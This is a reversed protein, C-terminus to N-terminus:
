HGLRRVFEEARARDEANGLADILVTTLHKYPVRRLNEELDAWAETKRGLALFTLGRRGWTMADSPNTELHRACNALADALDKQAAFIIAGTCIEIYTKRDLDCALRYDEWAGAENYVHYRAHGRLTHLRCRDVVKSPDVPMHEIAKDYDVVARDWENRIHHVLGRNVYANAITPDLRLAQDFDALAGIFDGKARRIIGRGHYAEAFSPEAAIATEFDALAGAFDGQAERIIGRNTLARYERPDLMIASTFDILAGTFDGLKQRALGRSNYAGSHRPDIQIVQTFAAVASASDGAQLLALGRQMPGDANTDTPM